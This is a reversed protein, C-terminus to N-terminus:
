RDGDRAASTVDERVRELYAAQLRRTAPGPAGNGVVYEGIRVVPALQITTGTLFVEAAAELRERSLSSEEVPLDAAASLELVVERTIGGLVGARLAPTILRSRGDETEVAFLNSAAGEVLEGSENPLLVEAAGAVRAEHRALLSIQYNTSKIGALGYESWRGFQSYIVRVGRQRTEDATPDLPHATVLLSPEGASGLDFRRTLIGRTLTLRVVADNWHNADVVDRIAGALTADPPCPLDVGASSARCRELHRALAFPVGDYARLTEYIGDGYLYGSDLVSVKAESSRRVRGDWWVWPDDPTAEPHPRPEIM